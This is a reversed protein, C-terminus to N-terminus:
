CPEHAEERRLTGDAGRYESVSFGGARNRGAPTVRGGAGM